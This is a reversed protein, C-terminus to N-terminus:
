RAAAPATPPPPVSDVQKIHGTAYAWWILLVLGAVGLILLLFRRPDLRDQEGDWKSSM